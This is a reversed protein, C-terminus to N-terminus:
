GGKGRAAKHQAKVAAIIEGLNEYKMGVWVGNEKMEVNQFERDVRVDLERLEDVLPKLKALCAKAAILRKLSDTSMVKPVRKAM